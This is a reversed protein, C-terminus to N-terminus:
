NQTSSDNVPDRGDELVRPGASFIHEIGQGTVVIEFSNEAVKERALASCAWVKMHKSPSKIFYNELSTRKVIQRDLDKM